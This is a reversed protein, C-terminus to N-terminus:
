LKIGLFLMCHKTCLEDYHKKLNQLVHQVYIKEGYIQQTYFLHLVLITRLM